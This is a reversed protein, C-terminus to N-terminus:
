KRKLDVSNQRLIKRSVKNIEQYSIKGWKLTDIVFREKFIEKSLDGIVRYEAYPHPLHSNNKSGKIFADILSYTTKEATSLEALKARYEAAWGSVKSKYKHDILHQTEHALYSVNFHESNIDYDKKICYLTDAGTWGGPYFHDFTAYGEWGLLITSDIFIVNVNVITDDIDITYNEKSQKKWIILDMLNGTREIRSYYGYHKFLNSLQLPIDKTNAGIGTERDSLYSYSNLLNSLLLGNRSESERITHQKMLIDIWYNQFIKITRIILSDQTKFDLKESKTQFRAIYKEKTSIQDASLSDNPISKLSEVIRLVDEQIAYYYIKDFSFKEVLTNKCESIVIVILILFLIIKLKTLM